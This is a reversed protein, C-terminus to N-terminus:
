LFTEEYEFKPFVLFYSQDSNQNQKTLTKSVNAPFTALNRINLPVRVIVEANGVRVEGGEGAAVVVAAAM